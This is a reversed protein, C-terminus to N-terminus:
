DVAFPDGLGHHNPGMVVVDKTIEAQSYVAGAIDGSYMYGAHPSVLALAKGRKQVEGIRSSVDRKLDTESGPYFQNAVAPRRVM